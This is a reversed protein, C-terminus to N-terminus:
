LASNPGKVFTFRKFFEDRPLVHQFGRPTHFVVNKADVVALLIEQGRYLDRDPQDQGEYRWAAGYSLSVDTTVSRKSM